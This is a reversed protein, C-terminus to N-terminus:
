ILGKNELVTKLEDLRYYKINNNEISCGYVLKISPTKYKTVIVNEPHQLIFTLVMSDDIVILKEIDIVENFMEYFTKTSYFYCLGGLCSRTSIYVKEKYKFITIMTGDVFEEFCTLDINIENFLSVNDSKRPPVAVLNNTNKELILGRCKQIDQDNMDCENKNYKILYLDDYEKVVLHKNKLIEKSEDFNTIGNLCQLYNM